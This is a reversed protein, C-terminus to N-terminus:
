TSPPPTAVRDEIRRRVLDVHQRLHYVLHQYGVPVRIAGIDVELQALRAQATARSNPGSQGAATEIEGLRGYWRYVRREFRWRVVPPLLRLLPVLLTIAPILLIATRDVFVAVWFPLDRQLFPPGREYFRAAERALPFSTEFPSPFRRPPSVIDGAAHTDRAAQLLLEKLAPHVAERVVLNATVAVLTVDAPPRMEAIDLLGRPITVTTAEPHRRALAAAEALDVLTVRPQRALRRVLPATPAAVVAVVDVEGRELAEAAAEGGLPLLEARQADIGGLALLRVTLLRTGSGEVGVAIRRGALETLRRPPPDLTTFLAFPELFMAGLSVLGADEEPAVVADTIAGQVLAAAVGSGPERLREINEISGATTRLELTVGRARLAKAYREGFLAYAGGDPGTAMTLSRPPAPEVFIYAAAFGALVVLAAPGYIRGQM